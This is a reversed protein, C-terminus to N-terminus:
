EMSSQSTGSGGTVPSWHSARIKWKGGKKLKESLSIFIHDLKKIHELTLSIVALDFSENKVPWAENLDTEIFTVKDSQIKNKAIDLMNKSFDLGILSDAKTILWETNKGTGCGLELVKLFDIDCLSQKSVIKDLDRTPNSTSDYQNAWTNYKDM